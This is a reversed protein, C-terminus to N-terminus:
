DDYAYELTKSVTESEKEVPIFGFKNYLYLGLKDLSASHKMVKFAKEVDYNRIGKLYTDAIIPL